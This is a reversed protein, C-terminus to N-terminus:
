SSLGICSPLTVRRRWSCLTQQVRPSTRPMYWIAIRWEDCRRAGQSQRMPADDEQSPLKRQGVAFDASQRRAAERLIAPPRFRRRTGPCWRGAGSEAAPGLRNASATCRRGRTAPSGDGAAYPTPSPSCWWGSCPVGAEPPSTPAQSRSRRLPDASRYPRANKGMAVRPFRAIQGEFKPQVDADGVARGDGVRDAM